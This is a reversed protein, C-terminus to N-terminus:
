SESSDGAERLLQNLLVNTRAYSSDCLSLNQYGNALVALATAGELLARLRPSLTEHAKVADAYLVDGGLPTHDAYSLEYRTVNGRWSHDQHRATINRTVFPM